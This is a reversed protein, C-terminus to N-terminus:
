LGYHVIYPLHSPESALDFNSSQTEIRIWLDFSDFSRVNAWRYSLRMVAHTCVPKEDRKNFTM